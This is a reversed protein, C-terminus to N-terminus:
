GGALAIAEDIPIRDFITLKGGVTADLVRRGDAEFAERAALYNRESAVLDPVAWRQGAFYSPDFHDRDDGELTEYDNANKGEVHFSHDVGVVIVPDAGMWYAMQLATYTVTASRGVGVTLDTSFDETPRLHFWRMGPRAASPVFYRAKRPLWIPVGSALMESWHQRIVSSNAAVVLSPRWRTRDYILDIKNMGIAPIGSLDDLPTDNLSPGNGVVLMPSGAHIGRLEEVDHRSPSRRYLQGELWYRPAVTALRIATKM